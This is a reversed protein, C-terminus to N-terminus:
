RMEELCREEVYGACDIVTGDDVVFYWSKGMLKHWFPTRMKLLICKEKLIYKEGNRTKVQQSASDFKYAKM